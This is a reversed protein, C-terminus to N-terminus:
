APVENADRFVTELDHQEPALSFVNVGGGVLTRAVEAAIRENGDIMMFLHHLDDAGQQESVEGVGPVGALLVDVRDRDADTVLALRQSRQLTALEEDLVLRGDRLIMVRDCIASVEQMIHTSLIVTARDALSRILDRMHQTQGPDLGSTPEDLILLSPKHLLAQAVGVRQRYGRSLTDIRSFAKDGLDTSAVAYRVADARQANAVGRLEAAYELYDVVTMEPYLPVNEPLYGLMAQVAEPQDAVDLGDVLIRGASPELFGSLMKMITTKGAGNHGLLGVVQGVDISFDVADVALFDGYSRTLKEVKIM